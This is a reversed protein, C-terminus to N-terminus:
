KKDNVIMFSSEIFGRYIKLHTTYLKFQEIAIRYHGLFEKLAYQDVAKEKDAYRKLNYEEYNKVASVINNYVEVPMEEADLDKICENFYNM